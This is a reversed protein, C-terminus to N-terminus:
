GYEEVLYPMIRKINKDITEFSRVYVNQSGGMPDDIVSKKSEKGPWAGLLFTKERCPLVFLRVYEKQTIDMTLVIDAEALESFDLPRSRHGSIDVGRGLCVQQAFETAPQSNLGYIGMSSVVLNNRGSMGWYHRLLGEAMPSRCVNGTCVFVVHFM